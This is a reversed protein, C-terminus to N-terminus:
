PTEPRTAFCHKYQMGAQSPLKGFDIMHWKKASMFREVIGIQKRLITVIRRYQVSTYGMYQRTLKALKRSEESSTNESKLWKALLSVKGPIGCNDIDRQLQQHMVHLADDQMPTGCLAYLDDWRGYQPIYELLKLMHYRQGHDALWRLCLKFYEREGQGGRADRLYFLCQLAKIKNQRYANVFLDLKYDDSEHRCAGCMAFLDYVKDLTSARTVAGNDTLSYNNERKIGTLLRSESM